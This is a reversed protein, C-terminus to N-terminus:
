WQSPTRKRDTIMTYIFKTLAFDLTVLCFCRVGGIFIHYNGGHTNNYDPLLIYLKFINLPFPKPPLYDPFLLHEQLLTLSFSAQFGSKVFHVTLKHFYM